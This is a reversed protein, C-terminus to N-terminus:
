ASLRSRIRIFKPRNPDNIQSIALKTKVKDLIGRSNLWRCVDSHSSLIELLDIVLPCHETSWLDDIVDFVRDRLVSSSLAQIGDGTLMIRYFIILARRVESKESNKMQVLLNPLFPIAAVANDADVVLNALCILAHGSSKATTFLDPIIKQMVPSEPNAASIAALCMLALNALDHDRASLLRAIRAATHWEDLMAAGEVTNALVGALRVAAHTLPTEDELVSDLFSHLDEAFEPLIAGADTTLLAALSFAAFVAAEIFQSRLIAFFVPSLPLMAQNTMPNSCFVYCLRLVSIQVDSSRSKLGRAFGDIFSPSFEKYVTANDMLITLTNLVELQAQPNGRSLIAAFRSLFVSITRQKPPTGMMLLQLFCLAASLISSDQHDLLPCIRDSAELSKLQHKISPFETVRILLVLAPMLIAPKAELIANRLLNELVITFVSEEEFAHRDIILNLLEIATQRAKLDNCLLFPSIRSLHTLAFIVRENRVIAILCDLVKPVILTCFRPLLDLFVAAGGNVLFSELLAEQKFLQSLLLSLHVVMNTERCNELHRVILPMIDFAALIRVNDERHAIAALQVIAMKDTKLQAVLKELAEHTVSRQDVEMQVEAVSM